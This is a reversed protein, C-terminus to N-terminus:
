KRLRGMDALDMAVGLNAAESEVFPAAGRLLMNYNNASSSPLTMTTTM